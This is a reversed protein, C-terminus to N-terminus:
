GLEELREMFAEVIKEELKTRLAKDELLRDLFNEALIECMTNEMRDLKSEIDDFRSYIIANSM